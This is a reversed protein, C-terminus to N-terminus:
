SHLAVLVYLIDLATNPPLRLALVSKTLTSSPSSNVEELRTTRPQATWIATSGESIAAGLPHQPGESTPAKFNTM